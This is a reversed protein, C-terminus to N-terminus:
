HVQHQGSESDPCQVLHKIHLPSLQLEQGYSGQLEIPALCKTVNMISPSRACVKRAKPIPACSSTENMRSLETSSPFWEAPDFSTWWLKADEKQRIMLPFIEWRQMLIYDVGGATAMSTLLEPAQLM